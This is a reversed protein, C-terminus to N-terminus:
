ERTRWTIPPSIPWNEVLRPQIRVGPGPLPIFPPVRSLDDVKDQDDDSVPSDDGCTRVADLPPGYTGDSLRKRLPFLLGGLDALVEEFAGVQAVAHGAAQVEDVWDTMFDHVKALTLCFDSLKMRHSQWQDETGRLPTTTITKLYLCARRLKPLTRDIREDLDVARMAEAHDHQWADLGLDETLSSLSDHFGQDPLAQNM